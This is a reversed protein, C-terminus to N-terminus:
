VSPGPSHKSWLHQGRIPNRGKITSLNVITVNLNSTLDEEVEAGVSALEGGDNVDNVVVPNTKM